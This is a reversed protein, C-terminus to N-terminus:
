AFIFLLGVFTDSCAMEFPTSFSSEASQSRVWHSVPQLAVPIGLQHFLTEPLEKLEEYEAGPNQTERLRSIHIHNIIGVGWPLLVYLSAAIRGVTRGDTQRDRKRM